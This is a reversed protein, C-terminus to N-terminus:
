IGAAAGAGFRQQQAAIQKVRFQGVPPWSWDRFIIELGTIFRADPGRAMQEWPTQGGVFSMSWDPNDADPWQFDTVAFEGNEGVALPRLLHYRARPGHPARCIAALCARGGFM